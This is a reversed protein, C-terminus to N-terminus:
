MISKVTGEFESKLFHDIKEALELQNYHTKNEKLAESLARLKIPSPDQVLLTLLYNNAEKSTPKSLIAQSDTPEIANNIQLTQM